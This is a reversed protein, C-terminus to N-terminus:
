FQTTKKIVLKTKKPKKTQKTPKQPKKTSQITQVNGVTLPIIPLSIKSSQLKGSQSFPLARQQVSGKQKM